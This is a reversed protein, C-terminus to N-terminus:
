QPSTLVFDLSHSSRGLLLPVFFKFSWATFANILALLVSHLLAQGPDCWRLTSTPAHQVPMPDSHFLIHSLSLIKLTLRTRSYQMTWILTFDMSSLWSSFIRGSSLLMVASAAAPVCLVSTKKRRLQARFTALGSESMCPDQVPGQGASCDQAGYFAFAKDQQGTTCGEAQAAQAQAQAQLGLMAM